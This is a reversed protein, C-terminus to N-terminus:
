RASQRILRSSKEIGKGAKGHRANIIRRYELKNTKTIGLQKETASVINLIDSTQKRHWVEWKEGDAILGIAKGFDSYTMEADQIHLTRLVAVACRAYELCDQVDIKKM